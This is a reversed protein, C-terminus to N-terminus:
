QGQRSLAREGTVYTFVTFGAEGRWSDLGGYFALRVPEGAPAFAAIRFACAEALTMAGVMTDPDAMACLLKLGARGQALRDCAPALAAWGGRWACEAILPQDTLHAGDATYARWAIDYVPDGAAEVPGESLLAAARWRAAIVHCHGADPSRELEEALLDRLRRALQDTWPNDANPYLGPQDVGSRRRALDNLAGATLAAARGAGTPSDGRRAM